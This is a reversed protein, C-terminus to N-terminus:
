AEDRTWWLCLFKPSDNILGDELFGQPDLAMYFYYNLTAEGEYDSMFSLHWEKRNPIVRRFTGIFDKNQLGAMFAKQGEEEMYEVKMKDMVFRLNNDASWIAHIVWKQHFLDFCEAPKDFMFNQM